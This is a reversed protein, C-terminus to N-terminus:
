KGQVQGSSDLASLFSWNSQGLSTAALRTSETSHAGISASLRPM